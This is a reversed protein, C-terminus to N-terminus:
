IVDAFRRESRSFCALAALFLAFSVASSVALSPLDFPKGLFVSRFAEVQAALPNALLLPRWAPPVLTSSYVIPTAYMWVQFLFAMLGGFDRYSVILISFLTGVALSFALLPLFALPLALLNPGFPVGYVPLLLLLFAASVAFDVVAGGVSALPLVLRPFYIKGILGASGVLSNGAATAASAFFNWPVLGALVFVPYPYGDSPIRALKGFVVTFIAVGLLPRLVVWAVGLLTQRYRITVDRAVLTALLERFKWVERFDPLRLRGAPEIVVRVGAPAPPTEKVTPDM